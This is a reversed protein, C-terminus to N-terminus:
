TQGLSLLAFEYKYYFYLHRHHHHQIHMCTFFYLTIFVDIYIHKIFFGASNITVVLGSQLQVSHTNLNVRDFSSRCSLTAERSQYVHFQLCKLLPSATKTHRIFPPLSRQTFSPRLVGPSSPRVAAFDVAPTHHPNKVSARIYGRTLVFAPQPHTHTM